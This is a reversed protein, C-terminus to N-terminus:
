IDDSLIDDDDDDHWAALTSKGSEKEREREREGNLEIMAEPLDELSCGTNMCLQQLYTRTPRGVSARRYSLTLLSFTVLSNTKAEGVAHRTRSIQITKSIPPRHGCLQQKTLHQKWSKNLICRLMKTCKGDQRKEMRKTLTWTTCGIYYLQCM